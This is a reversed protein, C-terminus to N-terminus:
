GRLGLQRAIVGRLIERTGGRLTFCPARLTVDALGEVYIDGEALLDPEAPALRRAIEPIEREFANGM